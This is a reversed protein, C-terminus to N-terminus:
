KQCKPDVQLVKLSRGLRRNHRPRQPEALERDLERERVSLRIQEEKITRQEALLYDRQAFIKAAAADRVQNSTIENM